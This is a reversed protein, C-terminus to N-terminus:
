VQAIQINKVVMICEVVQSTIGASIKKRGEPSVEPENEVHRMIMTFYTLKFQIERQFNGDKEQGVSDM